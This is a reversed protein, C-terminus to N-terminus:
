DELAEIAKDSDLGERDMLKKVRLARDRDISYEDMLETLEEEAEDSLVDEEGDNLINATM